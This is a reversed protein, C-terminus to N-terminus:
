ALKEQWYQVMMAVNAPATGGFSTRSAASAAPTLVGFVSETIRPEVAQMERLTWAATEHAVRAFLPERTITWADACLALLPGNDYLM